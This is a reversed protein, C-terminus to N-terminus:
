SFSKHRYYGKVTVPGCGLGKVVLTNAAIIIITTPLPSKHEEKFNSFPHYECTLFLEVDTAATVAM